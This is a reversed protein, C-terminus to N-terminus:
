NCPLPKESLPKEQPLSCARPWTPDTATAQLRRLVPETATACQRLQEEARPINSFWPDVLHGQTPPHTRLLQVVLSTRVKM